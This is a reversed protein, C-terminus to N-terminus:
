LRSSYQKNVEVIHHLIFFFCFSLLFVLSVLYFRSKPLIFGSSCKKSMQVRTNPRLDYKAVNKEETQATKKRKEDEFEYIVCSSEYKDTEAMGAM